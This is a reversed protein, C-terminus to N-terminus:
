LDAECAILMKLKTVDNEFGVMCLLKAMRDDDAILSAGKDVLIQAVDNNNAEIALYLASRAKNDLLDLNIEQEVLYKMM